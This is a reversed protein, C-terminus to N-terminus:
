LVETHLSPLVPVQDPVAPKLHLFCRCLIVTDLVSLFPIHSVIAPKPHLLWRCLVVILLDAIQHLVAPAFVVQVIGCHKTCSAYYIVLHCTRFVSAVQM